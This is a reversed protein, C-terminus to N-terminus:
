RRALPFSRFSAPKAMVPNQIGQSLQRVRRATYLELESLHIIGDRNYDAAGALGEVLALTFFGHKVAPSELSYERGLSSCMVIVGYDDTVLDRVLDDAAPAPRREKEAVEGSHCADLVAVLKGPMDGLTRKLHDGSICTKEVAAPDADVPVLYFRGQQDKTGHGSFFLVAVDQPTTVSGLWELGQLIDRRNADKDKLVKVEIKQFLKGSREKFARAIADADIAAYQLRMPGPYASVGVALVYLTPLDARAGGGRTIDLPPSVAKSVASEAQVALTHPGPALEVTWSERVEGVKPKAITRLGAQGKYPRGDVLLRLATVPNKGVSKATTKVEFRATTIQSGAAPSTIDVIPPLVQTVNVAALLKEKDKGALALAKPVSGAQLVLKIVDPQYLSKRFQGAPHVTALADPGNNIQWGMLREGFASAAYFGEPTWAIWETGAFFLSLLPQEQNPDWIRLTQDSSASLFYRNDPSPAVNLVSGSHGVFTRLLKNSALDVLHIGYATGVVGRNGDLLTFCHVAERALPPKFTHVVRDGEKIQMQFSQDMDLSRNGRVLQARHFGQAPADGFDLDTLRFSRELPTTNKHIEARNTNGWAITKGDASWGAAWVSQGKGVLKQLVTGDETQWILTEHNDGGTTVALKDDASLAGHMVTNTHELFRLRPKGTALDLLGARGTAGVGTYLLERGDRTFALATVQVKEKEQKGLDAYSNRLAGDAGWVRITADASGTAVTKGDAAWAVGNVQHAHGRLEATMKGTAVSWLRGTKDASSTAVSKGDPSWAVGLVRDGHGELVKDTRGSKLDYIRATADNSGSALQKGNPSFALAVVIQKHGKFVQAVRGTELALIHILVGYKGKGFPIGSVALLKGDPSLAAANLQGEDGPGIPLQFVRVTEGSAVDWVRVTKDYSVTIVQQGDPTFLVRRVVATHGGADFVLHPRDPEQKDPKQQAAATALLALCLITLRFPRM